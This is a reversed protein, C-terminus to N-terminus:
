FGWYTRIQDRYNARDTDNLASNWGVIMAIDAALYATSYNRFLRISGVLANTAGSAITSLAATDVAAKLDVGDHLYTLVYWTSTSLTLSVLDVATDYNYAEYRNDARQVAHLGFYGGSDALWPPADYVNAHIGFSAPTKVVAIITKASSGFYTAFTNGDLVDDTGDGRVVNKGNREATQLTPRTSGSATFSGGASGTNTWTGIPDGDSGSLLSADLLLTPSGLSLGASASPRPRGLPNLGYSLPTIVTRLSELRVRFSPRRSRLSVGAGVM